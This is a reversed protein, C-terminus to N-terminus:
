ALIRRIRAHTKLHDTHASQVNPPVADRRIEVNGDLLNKCYDPVCVYDFRATNAAQQNRWEKTGWTPPAVRIEKIPPATYKHMKRDMEGKTIVSANLFTSKTAFPGVYWSGSPEPLANEPLGMRTNDSALYQAKDQTRLGTRPDHDNLYLDKFCKNLVEQVAREPNRPDAMNDEGWATCVSTNLDGVLIQPIGDNEFDAKMINYIQLLQLIRANARDKGLIAQTHTGYIHMPGAATQIKIRMMGKPALREPGLNYELCHFHVDEIPYKSMVLTGSNFGSATPLVGSIIYPYQSKLEECLIHTGDEHFAEQFMIVDSLYSDNKISEALGKARECVPRLDGTISLTEIIFGLNHTQVTFPKEETMPCLAASDIKKSNDIVGMVPRFKYAILAALHVPSTLIAIAVSCILGIFGGIGMLIRIPRSRLCTVDEKNAGPRSQFSRGILQASKRWPLLLFQSIQHIKEATHHTHTSFHDKAASQLQEKTLKVSYDDAYMTQASPMSPIHNMIEKIKNLKFIILMIYIM